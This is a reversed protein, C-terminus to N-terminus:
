QKKPSLKGIIMKLEDKFKARFDINKESDYVVEEVPESIPSGLHEKRIIYQSLLIGNEGFEETLQFKEYFHHWSNHPKNNKYMSSHTSVFKIKTGFEKYGSEYISSINGRINYDIRRIQFDDKYVEFRSIRGTTSYCSSHGNLMGNELEAEVILYGHEDWMRWTGSYNKPVNIPFDLNGKLEKTSTVIDELKDSYKLTLSPYTYAQWIYIHKSWQPNGFSLVGLVISVLVIPVLIYLYLKKM